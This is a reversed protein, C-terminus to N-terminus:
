QGIEIDANQGNTFSTADHWGLVRNNSGDVVYLHEPSSSLDVAMQSPSNLSSAGPKNICNQSFDIQGLVADAINDGTAAVLATVMFVAIVAALAITSLRLHSGIRSPKQASTSNEM